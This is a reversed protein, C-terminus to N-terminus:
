TVQRFLLLVSLVSQGLFTSLAAGIKEEEATFTWIGDDM